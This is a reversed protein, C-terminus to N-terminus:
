IKLISVFFFYLAVGACSLLIHAIARVISKGVRESDSSPLMISNLAEFAVGLLGFIVFIFEM